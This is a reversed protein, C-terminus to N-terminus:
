EGESEDYEDDGSSGGDGEEYDEDGSSGDGGEEYDEDDSSGHGGEEYEEDGSGGSGGDSDEVDVDEGGRQPASSRMRMPVLVSAPQGGSNKYESVVEAPVGVRSGDIGALVLEYEIPSSDLGKVVLIYSGAELDAFALPGRAVLNQKSDYLFAELGDSEAKVGVGVKGAASVKFSWAQYERAGIFSASRGDEGAAAARSAVRDARIIGGGAASRAPRQWLSYEGAPLWAFLHMDERSGSVAVRREMGAGGLSIFGPGPASVDVYGAQAMRLKFSDGKGSLLAADVLERGSARGEQELLGDIEKGSKALYARVLGGRSRVHLSGSSAPASIFLSSSADRELRLFRGDDCELEASAADGALCLLEGEAAKVRLRAGEPPLGVTEFSKAASLEDEAAPRAPLVAYRLSAASIGRNVVFIRCAKLPLTDATRGDLSARTAVAEGDKWAALVLGKAMLVSLTSAPADLAVAGGAPVSIADRDGMKLAPLAKLDYSDLGLGVRRVAAAAASAAAGTAAREGDWLRAKWSGPPLIGLSGQSWSASADWDYAAAGAASAPKASFGCRFQGRTDVSVLLAKDPSSAGFGQGVEALDLVLGEGARLALPAASAAADPAWAWGGQSSASFPSSGPDRCPSELGSSVLLRGSVAAASLAEDNRLRVVEGAGLALPSSLSAAKEPLKKISLSPKAPFSTWAYLAYRAGGRLPIALEGEGAAVLDDGRYLRLSVPAEASAAIRYLGEGAKADFPLLIGSEDLAPRGEYPAAVAAQPAARRSTLRLEVHEDSAALPALELRYKGAKLRQVIDFNWDPGNDDSVAVATGDAEAVLRAAVDCRGLSWLEYFGDEPVSVATTSARSGPASIGAVGPALVSTYVGLTYPLQNAKEVPRVALSYSGRELAISGRDKPGLQRAGGPGDLRASFAEPIVLRAEMASPLSFSWREAEAGESWVSSAAQNLRLAKTGAIPAVAPEPEVRRIWTLRNTDISVPMSYLLYRGAGLRLKARGEGRYLPFGREDELRVQFFSALGTSYLEIEEEKALAFSFRAASDAALARRDVSGLDIAAPAALPVRDMRLAGRGASKGQTAAEVYYQGPRLWARVAANKGYGNASAEFLGLRSATRISLSTSLRGLTEIVYVAEEKVEFSYVASDGRAFDRWEAKGAALATTGAGFATARPAPLDDYSASASFGVRALASSSNRLSLVAKGPAIAAGEPPEQGNVLISGGKATRHFAARQAFSSKLELSEGAALELDLGSDLGVPWPAFSLGCGGSTGSGIRFSLARAKPDPDLAWAWSARNSPPEKGLEAAAKVLGGKYLAFDLAGLTKASITFLYYGRVLSFTTRNGGRAGRSREDGAPELDPGLAQLSYLASAQGSGGKEAVQYDGSEEVRLYMSGETEAGLNCRARVPSSGSLPLAFDKAVVAKRDAIRYALGTAPLDPAQSYSARLTVLGGSRLEEESLSNAIRFADLGLAEGPKADIRLLARRRPVQIGCRWDISDKKIEAGEDSALRSRGPAYASSFLSATGKTKRSLVAADVGDVMVFDSGFPSVALDLRGGVPMGIFGSRVYLPSQGGDKAWAREPGGYLRVCYSGAKAPVSACAYGMPRGAETQRESEAPFSGLMYQNERWIEIAALGRGMAEVEVAGDERLEIWYSASQLDKLSGSAVAGPVLRPWASSEDGGLERFTRAELKAAKAAAVGADRAAGADRAEGGSRDDIRVLYEGRDLCLDIRGDKVGAAGSSAIRGEMKDYLSIPMGVASKVIVSVRAARPLSLISAPDDNPGISPASLRPEQAALPAALGACLLLAIAKRM